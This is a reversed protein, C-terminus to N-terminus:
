KAIIVLLHAQLACNPVTEMRSCDGRKNSSCQLANGPNVALVVLIFAFVVM